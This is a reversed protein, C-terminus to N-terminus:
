AGPGDNPTWMPRRKLFLRKGIRMRATNEAYLADMEGKGWSPHLHEVISDAAFAWAKRKWSTEVFEDDCYEHWYGEHLVKGPEDITGHRDVYARTVLSHTSHVGRMVRPNGLDNTGVVGVREDELRALAKTLWGPHFHLDDAGMFLYPETSRTYATNVKRAFDGRQWPIVFHEAGAKRVAALEATDGTTCAFLVRHPEPTAAEIDELLPAVRHPRRLVPVVILTAGDM